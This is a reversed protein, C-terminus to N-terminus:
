LAGAGAPLEQVDSQACTGEAGARPGAGAGTVGAGEHYLWM